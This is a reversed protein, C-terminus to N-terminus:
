KRAETKRHVGNRLELAVRSKQVVVNGNKIREARIRGSNTFFILASPRGGQAGTEFEIHISVPSRLSFTEFETNSVPYVRVEAGPVQRILEVGVLEGGEWVYRIFGSGREYDIRVFVSVRGRERVASVTELDEFKGYRQERMEMWQQEEAEVRELPIGGGFAEQIGKFDGRMSRRLIDETREKLRIFMPSEAEGAGGALLDGAQAGSGTLLLRNREAKVEITAGSSLRYTGEFSSLLAHDISVTKPPLNYEYGFVARSLDRTAYDVPSFESLNSAAFIVVDKDVFRRFDASFIGNGGNHTILRTGLYDPVISWGYGYYSQGGGEDAYPTFYKEKAEESLIEDGELALHWRYMDGVTSHIGGNARLHWSPGDDLMPQQIVSGWRRGNRYGVALEETNYEPMLYGTRKMGAPEFLYEQLFGEYPQGSVKEVIIGLLSFGVNSYNYREGPETLLEVKMAQEVFRDATASVDFDDGIAGPFGATHTLLHHLTIGAKDEPVNSFYKTIPDDTSLKGMMELKLIAAGTFQKTISGITFVTAPTVPRNQERDALGYGKQLLVKGDKAVIVAGSFGVGELRTMYEDLIVGMEGSVVVDEQAFVSTSPFFLGALIVTHILHVHM